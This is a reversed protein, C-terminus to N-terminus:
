GEAKRHTNSIEERKPKKIFYNVLFRDGYLINKNFGLLKSEMTIQMSYIYRSLM